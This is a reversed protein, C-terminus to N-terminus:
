HAGPHRSPVSSKGGGKLGSKVGITCVTERVLKLRKTGDNTKM